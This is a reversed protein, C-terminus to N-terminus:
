EVLFLGKSFWMDDLVKAKELPNNANIGITVDRINFKNGTYTKDILLILPCYLDEGELMEDLMSKSQEFSEIAYEHTATSACTYITERFELPDVEDYVSDSFYIKYMESRPDTLQYKDDEEDVYISKFQYDGIFSENNFLENFAKNTENCNDCYNIAFVLFYKDTTKFREEQDYILKRADGTSLLVQNKKFLNEISTNGSTTNNINSTIQSNGLECASSLLTAALLLLKKLKNKM